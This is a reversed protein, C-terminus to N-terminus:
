FVDEVLFNKARLKFSAVYDPFPSDISRLHLFCKHKTSGHKIGKSRKHYDSKRDDRQKQRQIKRHALLLFTDGRIRLLRAGRWWRRSGNGSRDRRRSGLDGFRHDILRRLYNN